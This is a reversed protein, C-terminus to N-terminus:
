QVVFPRDHVEVEYKSEEGILRFNKALLDATKAMKELHERLAIAMLPIMVRATLPQLMYGKLSAETATLQREFARLDESRSPMNQAIFGMVEDWTEPILTNNDVSKDEYLRPIMARANKAILELAEIATEKRLVTAVEAEVKISDLSIKADMALSTARDAAMLAVAAQVSADDAYRKTARFARFNLVTMCGVFVAGFISGIGIWDISRIMLLAQPM